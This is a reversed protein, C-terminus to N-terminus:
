WFRIETTKHSGTCNSWSQYLLAAKERPFQASSFSCVLCFRSSITILRWSRRCRDDGRLRQRNKQIRKKWANSDQRIPSNCTCKVSESELRGFSPSHKTPRMEQKYQSTAKNDTKSWQYPYLNRLFIGDTTSCLSFSTIIWNTDHFQIMLENQMHVSYKQTDEIWLTSKNWKFWM